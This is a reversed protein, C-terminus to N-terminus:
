TPGPNAADFLPFPFCPTAGDDLARALEVADLASCAIPVRHEAGTRMFTRQIHRNSGGVAVTQPVMGFVSHTEPTM